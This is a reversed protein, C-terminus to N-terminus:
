RMEGNSKGKSVMGAMHGWEEEGGPGKGSRGHTVGGIGAEKYKGGIGEEGLLSMWCKWGGAIGGERGDRGERKGM